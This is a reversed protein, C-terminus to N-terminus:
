VLFSCAPCPFFSSFSQKVTNLMPLSPATLPHCRLLSCMVPTLVTPSVYLHMIHLVGSVPVFKQSCPWYPSLLMFLFITSSASFIGLCWMVCSRLRALFCPTVPPGHAQSLHSTVPMKVPDSHSSHPSVIIYLM